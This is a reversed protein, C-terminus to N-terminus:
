FGLVQLLGVLAVGSGWLVVTLPRVKSSLLFPPLKASVRNQGAAVARAAIIAVLGVVVLLGGVLRAPAGTIVFLVVALAFSAVVALFLALNIRDTM